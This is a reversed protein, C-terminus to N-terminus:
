KSSTTKRLFDGQSETPSTPMDIAYSMTKVPTQSSGRSDLCASAVLMKPKSTAQLQLQQHSHHNVSTQSEGFGIQGTTSRNALHNSPSSSLQSNTSSSTSPSSSQVEPAADSPWNTASGVLAHTVRASYPALTSGAGAGLPNETLNVSTSNVSSSSRGSDDHDSNLNNALSAPLAVVQCGSSCNNSNNCYGCTGSGMQYSMLSGSGQSVPRTQQQGHSNSNHNQTQKDLRQSPQLISTSPQSDFPKKVVVVVLERETEKPTAASASMSKNNSEKPQQDLMTQDAAFPLSFEGIAEGESKGNSNALTTQSNSPSNPNFNTRQSDMRNSSSTTPPDIPTLSSNSSTVSTRRNITAVVEALLEAEHDLRASAAQQQVTPPRGEGDGEEERLIGRMKLSSRRFISALKGTKASTEPALRRQNDHDEISGDMSHWNCALPLSSNSPTHPMQMGGQLDCGARVNGDALGVSDARLPPPVRKRQRASSSSTAVSACSKSGGNGTMTTIIYDRNSKNNGESNGSSNYNCNDGVREIIDFSTCINRTNGTVMETLKNTSNSSSKLTSTSTPLSVKSKEQQMTKDSNVNRGGGKPERMQSFSMSTSPLPALPLRKDNAVMQMLMAMSARFENMDRRMELVSASVSSIHEDIVKLEPDRTVATPPPKQQQQRSKSTLKSQHSNTTASGNSVGGGDLRTESFTEISHGDSGNSGNAGISTYGGATMTNIQKEQKHYDSSNKAKSHITGNTVSRRIPMRVRQQPKQQQQHHHNVARDSPGEARAAGIPTRSATLSVLSANVHSVSSQERLKPRTKQSSAAAAAIPQQQILLGTPLNTAVDTYDGGGISLTLLAPKGPICGASARRRDVIATTNRSLDFALPPKRSTPTNTTTTPSITMSDVSSKLASSRLAPALPAAKAGVMSSVMPGSASQHSRAEQRATRSKLASRRLDDARHISSISMQSIIGASGSAVRGHQDLLGEFSSSHLSQTDRNRIAVRATTAKVLRKRSGRPRQQRRLSQRQTRITTGTADSSEFYDDDGNDESELEVDLSTSTLLENTSDESNVAATQEVIGLSNQDDCVCNIDASTLPKFERAEGMKGSGGGQDKYGGAGQSGSSHSGGEQRTNSKGLNGGDSGSPGNPGAATDSHGESMPPQKDKHNNNNDNDRESQDGDDEDDQGEDEDDDDEEDEEDDDDEEEEEVSDLDNDEESESADATGGGSSIGLIKGSSAQREAEDQHDYRGITAQANNSNNNNPLNSGGYLRGANTHRGERRDSMSIAASEPVVYLPRSDDGEHDQDDDDSNGSEDDDGHDRGQDHENGSDDETNCGGDGGGGGGGDDHDQHRNNNDDDDEDDENPIERLNFSLDHQIETQFTDQFEPYMKLVELLGAVSICKLDCYTLAKLDSSSKVLGISMQMKNLGFQTNEPTLMSAVDYGVLDGKGLIGVM